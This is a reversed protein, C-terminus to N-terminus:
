VEPFSMQVCRVLNKEANRLKYLTLNRKKLEGIESPSKAKKNVVKSKLFDRFRSLWAFARVLRWWSSDILSELSRETAVTEYIPAGKRVEPVEDSLLPGDTNVSKGESKCLFEPGKLWRSKQLVDLKIGIYRYRQIKVEKSKPLDSLWRFWQNRESM